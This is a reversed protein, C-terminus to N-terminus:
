HSAPLTLGHRDVGVLEGLVGVLRDALPATEAADRGRVELYYKLKPETGSARLTLTVGGELSYTIMMDGPQWPLVARGDPQSTDLGTGLDRVHEVVIGGISKAYRGTAGGGGGGGSGGSDGGSGSGASSGDAGSGSGSGGRLEEFVARSKEPRDAIFYGSRFDFYGYKGYLEQLLEDLTRGKGYTDAALETFVSAAAIGDKDKYMGGLMFGISEEFAFVVVNNGAGEEKGEEEEKEEEQEIRLATNGLWKFGTLTEEFRFGEVAAMSALLQSSVASTLLACRCPPVEPHQKRFNTWMWHALLAGIENGSFVRWDGGGGGGGAAAPAAAPAASRREAVCLRDADPDNALVLRAGQQLGAQFALNWTGKGEEPNPFVVTRFEPDPDRQEPVIYPEPLDMVQFAGLLAEAGVGHLPTYVPRGLAGLAAVRDPGAPPLYRLAALRRYYATTVTVWPDTLLPSALLESEAPLPWPDLNAAIAAAIGADHPPIIQCGNGWYVKYGNYEKPNHSATVMVGAAAGLEVVGAAVFPTPVLRRFLAVRVGRSVFVAATVRAFELSGHRGDYGVVIGGSHLHTPCTQRLYDYLGQATQQVLVSNMRNTGPGLKGRLGATGFELRSGLLDSLIDLRGTDLLESIYARSAEDKDWKLWQQALSPVDSRTAHAACRALRLPGRASFPRPAGCPAPPRAIRTLSM